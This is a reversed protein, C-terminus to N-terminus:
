YRAAALLAHLETPSLETTPRGPDHVTDNVEHELELLGRRRLHDAFTKVAEISVRIHLDRRIRRVLRVLDRGDMMWAVSYSFDTLRMRRRTMPDYLEIM